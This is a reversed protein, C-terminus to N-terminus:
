YQVYGYTHKEMDWYMEDEEDDWLKQCAICNYIIMERSTQKWVTDERKCWLCFPPDEVNIPPLDDDFSEREDDIIEQRVLAAVQDYLFPNDMPSFCKELCSYTFHVHDVAQDPSNNHEYFGLAGSKEGAMVQEFYFTIVVDGYAFVKNCAACKEPVSGWQPM